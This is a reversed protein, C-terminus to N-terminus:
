DDRLRIPVLGLYGSFWAFHYASKALYRIFLHKGFLITFPLMATYICLAAFTKATSKKLGRTRVEEGSLGGMRVSRRFYYSAKWREPPVAEYVPAEDCWVFVRGKEIVKSFFWVDEGGTRGYEREFRNDPDDFIARKLLVNGTRTQHPRMVTGTPHSTRECMNAKVLWRPCNEDFHTKVPGIIGESDFRSCDSYLNLLWESGPFEDDDIFAVFDGQANEVGRNRALAINQEPELFYRVELDSAEQFSQVVQRASGNRDNDVIVVSYSFLNDTRQHVLKDLLKKLLDPRKFTCICITIHTQKATM